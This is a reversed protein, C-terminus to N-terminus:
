FKQQQALTGPMDKKFYAEQIQRPKESASSQQSQQSQRMEDENEIDEFLKMLNRRKEEALSVISSNQSVSDIQKTERYKDIKRELNQRTPNM